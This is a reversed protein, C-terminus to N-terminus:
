NYWSLIFIMNVLSESFFEYPDINVSSITQLSKNQQCNEFKTKIDNSNVKLFTSSQNGFCQHRVEVHKSLSIPTHFMRKCIGCAYPTKSNEMAVKM